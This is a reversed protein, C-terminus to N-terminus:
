FTFYPTLREFDKKTFQRSLSLDEWARIRGYNNRYNFIEKVQEYNLYPHRYLERFSAKNVNLKRPKYDTEITFWRIATSDLGKIESLQQTSVYGGLNNRQEVIRKAYYSGIGPIKKLLTTDAENLDVLSGDPLTEKKPYIIRVVTDGATEHPLDIYPRLLKFEEVTLGYLESFKEVTKWKGGKRRYQLANHAQWPQFGLKIFTASDATNPNFRFLQATYISPKVHDISDQKAEEEFKKIIEVEEASLPSPEPEKEATFRWYAVVGGVVATLLLLFLFLGRKDAKSWSM